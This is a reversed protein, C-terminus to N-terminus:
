LQRLVRHGDSYGRWDRNGAETQFAPTNEAAALSESRQADVASTQNAAMEAAANGASGLLTLGAAGIAADKLFARRSIKKDM